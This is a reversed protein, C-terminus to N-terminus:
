PTIDKLLNVVQNKKWMFQEEGIENVRIYFLLEELVKLLKILIYKRNQYLLNEIGFLESVHVM